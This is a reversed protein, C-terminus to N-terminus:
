GRKYIYAKADSFLLQSWLYLTGSMVRVNCLSKLLKESLQVIQILWSKSLLIAAAIEEFHIYLKYLMFSFCTEYKFTLSYNIQQDVFM